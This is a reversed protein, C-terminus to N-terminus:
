SVGEVYFWLEQRGPIADDRDEVTVGSTDNLPLLRLKRDRHLGLIREDLADHRAASPGLARAISRRIEPIPVLGSHGFRERKLETFAAMVARDIAEPGLPQPTPPPPIVTGGLAARAADDFREPSIGAGGYKKRLGELEGRLHEVLDPPRDTFKRPEKVAFKLAEHAHGADLLGQLLDGLQDESAGPCAKKAARALEPFTQPGRDKGKGKSLVALLASKALHDPGRDWFLPAGGKKAPPFRHVGGRDALTELAKRVTEVSFKNGTRTRVRAPDLPADSGRLAPLLADIAAADQSTLAFRPAKGSAPDWRHIAARSAMEELLAGLGAASPKKKGPLKARVQATTMPESTEGVLALISEELSSEDLLSKQIAM